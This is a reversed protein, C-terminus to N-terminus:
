GTRGEVADVAKRLLELGYRFEGWTEMTWQWSNMTPSFVMRDFDPEWKEALTSAVRAIEDAEDARTQVGVVELGTESINGKGDVLPKGGEVDGALQIADSAWTEMERTRTIVWAEPDEKRLKKLEEDSMKAMLGGGM